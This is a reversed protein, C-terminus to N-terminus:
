KTSKLGKIIEPQRSRQSTNAEKQGLAKLHARLCNTYARELKKKSASLTTYKGRLVVEM